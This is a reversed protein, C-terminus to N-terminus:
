FTYCHRFTLLLLFQKKTKPNSCLKSIDCKSGTWGEYCNCEFEMSCNGHVCGPLPICVDCNIGEWGVECACFNPARCVGHSCTMNDHNCIPISCPNIKAQHPDLPQRWGSQCIVNGKYDCIYSITSQFHM